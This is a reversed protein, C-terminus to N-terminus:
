SLISLPFINGNQSISINGKMCDYPSLPFYISGFKLYARLSVDMQLIWTYSVHPLYVTSSLFRDEFYVFIGVDVLELRGSTRTIILTYNPEVPKLWRKQSIQLLLGADNDLHCISEEVTFFHLKNIVKNLFKRLYLHWLKPAIEYINENLLIHSLGEDSKMEKLGTLLLIGSIFAKIM